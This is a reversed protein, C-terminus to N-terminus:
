EVLQALVQLRKLSGESSSRRPSAMKTCDFSHNVLTSSFTPKRRASPETCDFSFSLVTSVKRTM